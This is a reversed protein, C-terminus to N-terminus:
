DLPGDALLLQTMYAVIHPQSITQNSGIPLATDEYARHALAEDVFLHRPTSRMVELVQEDTIGDDRLRQILRERTRQSTMGIGLRQLDDLQYSM